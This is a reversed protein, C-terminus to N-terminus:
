YVMILLRYEHGEHLHLVVINPLTLHTELHYESISHQDAVWLIIPEPLLVVYESSLCEGM